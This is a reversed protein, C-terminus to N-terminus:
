GCLMLVVRMLRCSWLDMRLTGLEAGRGGPQMRLPVPEIRMSGPILRMSGPILRMSGPKLRVGVLEGRLEM